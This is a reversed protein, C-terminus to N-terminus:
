KKTKSDVRYFSHNQASKWSHEPTVPQSDARSLCCLREAAVNGKTEVRRWLRRWSEQKCSKVSVEARICWIYLFYLSNESRLFRTMLHCKGWFVQKKPGRVKVGGINNDRVDRVNLAARSFKFSTSSCTPVSATPAFFRRPGDATPM